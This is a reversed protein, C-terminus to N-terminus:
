RERPFIVVARNPDQGESRSEVKGYDKVWMHIIRRESAPMPRMAYAKHTMAVRESIREALGELSERKRERYGQIDLVCYVKRGAVKSVHASLLTQMSALTEGRRGILLGMDDGDIYVNPGGDRMDADVTGEIEMKELLGAVFSRASEVLQIDEETLEQEYVPEEIGAQDAVSPATASHGTLIEPKVKVRVRASGKGLGLFGKSPEDVIFVDVDGREVGLEELAIEIAEEVTGGSTEIELDM